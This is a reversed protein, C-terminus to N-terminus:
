QVFQHPSSQQQANPQWSLSQFACDVLVTKSLGQKVKKTTTTKQEPKLFTQKKVQQTLEFLNDITKMPVVLM